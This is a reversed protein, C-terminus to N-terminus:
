KLNLEVHVLTSKSDDVTWKGTAPPTPPTIPALTWQWVYLCQVHRKLPLGAKGIRDSNGDVYSTYAGVQGKNPDFSSDGSQYFSIGFPENNFVLDGQKKTLDSARDDTWDQWCKVGQQYKGNADLTKYYLNTSGNNRPDTVDIYEARILKWAPYTITEQVTLWAPLPDPFKYM